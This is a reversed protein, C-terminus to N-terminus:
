ERNDESMKNQRYLEKKYLCEPPEGGLLLQQWYIRAEEDTLIRLGEKSFHTIPTSESVGIDIWTIVIRGDNEEVVGTYDLSGAWEEFTHEVGEPYECAHVIDGLYISDGNRDIYETKYSYINGSNAM